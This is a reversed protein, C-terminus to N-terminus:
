LHLNFIMCGVFGVECDRQMGRDMGGGTPFPLLASLTLYLIFISTQRVFKNSSGNCRQNYLVLYQQSASALREGGQGKREELMYSLKTHEGCPQVYSHEYRGRMTGRSLSCASCFFLHSWNRQTCQVRINSHEEHFRFPICAFIQSM